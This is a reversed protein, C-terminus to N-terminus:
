KRRKKEITLSYPGEAAASIEGITDRQLSTGTAETKIAPFGCFQHGNSIRIIRLGFQKDILGTLCRNPFTYNALM